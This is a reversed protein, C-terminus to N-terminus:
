PTIQKALPLWSSGNYVMLLFDGVVTLVTGGGLTSANATNQFVLKVQGKTGAALTFTQPTTPELFTVGTAVSIAGSTITEVEALGLGLNTLATIQAATAVGAVSTTASPLIEVTETGTLGVIGGSAKRGVIRSASVTLKVPTANTDAKLISNATLTSPPIGGANDDVYKKTAADLDKVPATLLLNRQQIM